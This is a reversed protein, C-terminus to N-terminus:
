VAQHVQTVGPAFGVERRAMTDLHGDDLVLEGPHGPISKEGQPVRPVHGSESFILGLLLHFWLSLFPVVVDASHKVELVENRLM